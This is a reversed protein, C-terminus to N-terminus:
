WRLSCDEEQLSRTRSRQRVMEGSVTAHNQRIASLDSEACHVDAWAHQLEQMHREQEASMAQCTGQADELDRELDQVLHTDWRSPGVGEDVPTHDGTGPNWPRHYDGPTRALPSGRPARRPSVGPPPPPPTM